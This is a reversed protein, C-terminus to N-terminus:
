RRYRRMAPTVTRDFALVREGGNEPRVALSDTVSAVIADEEADVVMWQSLADEASERMKADIKSRKEYPLSAIRRVLKHDDASGKMVDIRALGSMYGSFSEYGEGKGKALAAHYLDEPISITVKVTLSM